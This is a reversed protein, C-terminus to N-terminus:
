FCIDPNAGVPYADPPIEAEAEATEIEDWYIHLNRHIWVRVSSILIHM